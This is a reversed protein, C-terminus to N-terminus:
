ATATSSSYGCLKFCFPCNFYIKEFPQQQATIIGHSLNGAYVILISLALVAVSRAYGFGNLIRIAKVHLLFTWDVFFLGAVFWITLSSFGDGSTIFLRDPFTIEPIALHYIGMVVATIAAVGLMEPVLCYALVSFARRFDCNGGWRRGIWFIGAILLMAM